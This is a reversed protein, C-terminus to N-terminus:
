TLVLTLYQKEWFNLEFEGQRLLLVLSYNTTTTAVMNFKKVFTLKFPSGIQFNGLFANKM